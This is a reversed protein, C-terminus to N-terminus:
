ENTDVVCQGSSTIMSSLVRFGSCVLIHTHPSVLQCMHIQPYSSPLIRTYLSVSIFRLINPHSCALICALVCSGWSTLVCPHPCPQIFRFIHLHLSPLICVLACLCLSILIRSHLLIFLGFIYRIVIYRSVDIYRIISQHLICQVNGLIRIYKCCFRRALLKIETVNETFYLTQSQLKM